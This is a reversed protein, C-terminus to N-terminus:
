CVPPRQTRGFLRVKVLEEIMASRVCVGSTIEVMWVRFDWVQERDQEGVLTPNCCEGFLNFGELLRIGM